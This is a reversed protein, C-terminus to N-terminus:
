GSARSWRWILMDKHSTPSLPPTAGDATVIGAMAAWATGAEGRDPQATVDAPHETSSSM